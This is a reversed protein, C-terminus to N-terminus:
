NWSYGCHQFTRDFSGNMGLNAVVNLIEHRLSNHSWNRQVRDHLRCILECFGYEIPGYKPQYPPRRQIQFEVPGARVEVTHHVIPASHASLNDWLFVRDTDGTTAASQEISACVHECFDAYTAASTGELELIRIWRRPRDISGDVHPPLNPNGAEIAMLINYKTDRTYHGPKRIRIGQLSHGKRRECQELGIGCEDFDVLTRRPVQFVGLPPPRTWFLEVKLLNIPLYAQYAETSAKKETMGVEKMRTSIVGRTYVRGGNEYIFMAAEDAEAEPYAALFLVLLMQDVGVLNERAKGGTQRFSELRDRWRYISATSVRVPQGAAFRALQDMRFWVPYGGSGARAPDSERTRVQQLERTFGLNRRAVARTDEENIAM